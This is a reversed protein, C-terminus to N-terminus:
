TGLRRVLSKAYIRAFVPTALKCVAMRVVKRSGALADALVITGGSSVQPFSLILRRLLFLTLPAMSMNERFSSRRKPVIEKLSYALGSAVALNGDSWRTEEM